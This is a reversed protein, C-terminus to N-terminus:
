PPDPSQDEHWEGTQKCIATETQSKFDIRWLNRL